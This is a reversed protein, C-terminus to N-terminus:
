LTMTVRLGSICWQEYLRRQEKWSLLTCKTVMLCRQCATLKGHVFSDEHFPLSLFSGESTEVIHQLQASQKLFPDNFFLPASTNAQFLHHQLSNYVNYLSNHIYLDTHVGCFVCVCLNVKTDEGGVLLRQCFNNSDFFWNAPEQFPIFKGEVEVCIAVSRLSEHAQTGRAVKDVSSSTSLTRNLGLCHQVLFVQSVKTKPCFNLM